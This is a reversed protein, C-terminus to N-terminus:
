PDASDVIIQAPAYFIRLCRGRSDTVLWPHTRYTNQDMTAKPPVQFWQQRTGAYDLWYVTLSGATRNTITYSTEGTAEYSRIRAEASCDIRLRSDSPVGALNQRGTNIEQQRRRESELGAGFSCLFALAVILGCGLCGHPKQVRADQTM